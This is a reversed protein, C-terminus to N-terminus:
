TRPLTGILEEIVTVFRTATAIADQAQDATIRTAPDTNYDAISKLEYAASLFKVLDRGIRPEDKALRNFESRLGSHTKAIKGTCHFVYAEAAHYAALYAERAAARPVPSLTAADILCAKATRGPQALVRSRLSSSSGTTLHTALAGSPSDALAPTM